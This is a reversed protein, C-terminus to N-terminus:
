PQSRPHERVWQRNKVQQFSEDPASTFARPCERVGVPLFDPKDILEQKTQGQWGVKIRASPMGERSIDKGIAPNKHPMLTHDPQAMMTSYVADNYSRRSLICIRNPGGFHRCESCPDDDGDRGVKDCQPFNSCVWPRAFFERSVERFSALCTNCAVGSLDPVMYDLPEKTGVLSPDPNQYHDNHCAEKTLRCSRDAAFCQCPKNKNSQHPPGIDSMTLHTQRAYQHIRTPSFRTTKTPIFEKIAHLSVFLAHHPQQGTSIGKGHDGV